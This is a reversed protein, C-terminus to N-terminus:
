DNLAKLQNIFDLYSTSGVGIQAWIPRTHAGLTDYQKDSDWLTIIQKPFCFEYADFPQLADENASIREFVVQAETNFVNLGHYFVSYNPHNAIGIFSAQDAEYEVVIANDFYYDQEEDTGSLNDAGLAQKVEARKMGLKIPGIGEHANIDFDM